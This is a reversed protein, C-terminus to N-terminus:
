ASGFRALLEARAKPQKTPQRAKAPTEPARRVGKQGFFEREPSGEEGPAAKAAARAPTSIVCLPAAAWVAAAAAQAGVPNPPAAEDAPAVAPPAGADDGAPAVAPPPAGADPERAPAVAPPPAGTDRMPAAAGTDPELGKMLRIYSICSGAEGATHIEDAVMRRLALEAASEDLRGSQRLCRLMQAECHRGRRVIGAASAEQMEDVERAPAVAPPPAGAAPVTAAPAQTKAPPMAAEAKAQAKARAKSEKKALRKRQNKSLSPADGAALEGAALGGPLPVRGSM